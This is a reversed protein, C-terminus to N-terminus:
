QCEYRRAYLVAESDPSVENDISSAMSSIRLLM